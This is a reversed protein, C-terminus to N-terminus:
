ARGDRTQLSRATSDLAAHLVFESGIASGVIESREPPSLDPPRWVPATRRRRGGDVEQDGREVLLLAERGDELSNGVRPNATDDDDVVSTRVGGDLAGLRVPRLDDAFRAPAVSGGTQGPEVIKRLLRGLDHGEHIGIVAVHRLL